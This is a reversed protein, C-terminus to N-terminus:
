PRSSHSSAKSKPTLEAITRMAAPRMQVRSRMTLVAAHRAPSAAAPRRVCHTAFSERRGRFKPRHAEFEAQVVSGGGGGVDVAHDDAGEGFLLQGGGADRKIGGAIAAQARQQFTAVD